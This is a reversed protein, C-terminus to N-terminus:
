PAPLAPELGSSQVACTTQAQDCGCTNGGADEFSADVESTGFDVEGNLDIANCGFTVGEITAHGGFNSLGARANLAIRSATVSVEAGVLAVEVGDGFRGQSDALTSEIICQELSAKSGWVLVGVDHNRQVVVGRIIGLSAEDTLPDRLLGVGIGLQGDAYPATDAIVSDAMTLDAGLVIVGGGHNNDFTSSRVDVISRGGSEANTKAHLGHGGTAALQTARIASSRFSLMSGSVLVGSAVNNDLLSHDITVLSGAGEFAPDAAISVGIGLGDADLATDRVVTADITADGGVISIGAGRSAAVVSRAVDVVPRAGSAAHSQVQIGIGYDGLDNASTDRITVGDLDVDSGEVVLAAERNRALLTDVITVRSGEGANSPRVDVGSGRVGTGDSTTDRVLTREIHADAAAVHLGLGANRELISGTVTVDARRRSNPNYRGIVGWGDADASPLTDRVVTADVQLAVGFGAVGIGTAREVLSRSLKLSAPGFDDNAEIGRGGTDHVWIEDLVVHEAGSVVVGVTAGTLAVGHIQAGSGGPQVFVAAVQGAVGAIEVQLPCVGHLSVGKTVVVAEPYAGAAIAVTAGAAAADVGQQITAWPQGESGDSPGVYGGDVFQTAGATMPFKAAPCPAVDRCTVEGVLAM